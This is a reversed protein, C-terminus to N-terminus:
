NNTVNENEREDNNEAKLPEIMMRQPLTGKKLRVMNVIHWVLFVVIIIASFLQSVRISTAGIYLSDTRLGEVVMRELGYWIGYLFFVEGKYSRKHNVIYNLIFFGLICWVSEYLFTPHVPTNPDVTMGKAALTDASAQLTDHIKLSWMRFPATTTNAGFAEQNFFNGWRGMAQAIILGVVAMDTMKLIRVKYKLSYFIIFLLGGIIGGHIALGGKWVELIEVPNELYYSLNFLVFYIRAGIIGFIVTWFILNIGFDINIEYKKCELLFLLSALMVGVLICLSYWTIDFNGLSIAVSNM